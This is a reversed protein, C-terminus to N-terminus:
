LSGSSSFFLLLLTTDMHKEIIIERSVRSLIEGVAQSPLCSLDLLWRVRINRIGAHRAATHNSELDLGNNDHYRVVSLLILNVNFM